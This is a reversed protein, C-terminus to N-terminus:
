TTTSLSLSEAKGYDVVMSADVADKEPQTMEVVTDAVVKWYKQPVGDVGSLDPNILWVGANYDPTNVSQLYQYTTRNIVNAM